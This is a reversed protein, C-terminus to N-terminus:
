RRWGPRPAPSTQPCRLGEGLRLRWMQSIPHAQWRARLPLCSSICCARLTDRSGAAALFGWNFGPRPHALCRHPERYREWTDGSPIPPTSHAPTNPGLAQNLGTGRCGRIQPSPNPPHDGTVNHAQQIQLLGLPASFGGSPGAGRVRQPFFAGLDEPSPLSSYSPPTGPPSHHLCSVPWGEPCAEDILSARGLPGPLPRWSCETPGLGPMRTHRCLPVLFVEQASVGSRPTPFLATVVHSHGRETISVFLHIDLYFVPPNLSPERFTSTPQPPSTALPLTIGGLVSPSDSLCSLAGSLGSVQFWGPAPLSHGSHDQLLTVSHLPPTLVCFQPHPGHPTHGPGLYADPLTEGRQPGPSLYCISGWGPLTQVFNLGM